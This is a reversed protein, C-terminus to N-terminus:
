YRFPGDPLHKEVTEVIADIADLAADCSERLRRKEGYPDNPIGELEHLALRDDIYQALWYSLQMETEGRFVIWRPAPNAASVVTGLAGM